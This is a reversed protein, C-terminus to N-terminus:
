QTVTCALWVETHNRLGTQLTGHKTDRTYEGAVEKLKAARAIDTNKGGPLVAIYTEVDDTNVTVRSVTLGFPRVPAPLVYDGSKADLKAGLSKLAKEVAPAKGVGQECMLAQEVVSAASTAALAAPSTLAAAGLFSWFLKHM